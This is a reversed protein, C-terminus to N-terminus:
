LKHGTWVLNYGVKPAWNGCSCESFYVDKDPHADGATRQAAGDGGYCHWAVGAVYRRAGSDGLVALPSAPEDWNHDWDLIRTTLGSRQFLPGLYQGIFRARAHPDLRMGPYDNPEYHPENQVTLAYIPIREAAYAEIFRRFYEAFPGYAEPRLTGKIMRGTTKM